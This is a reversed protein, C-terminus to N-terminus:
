SGKKLCERLQAVKVELYRLKNWSGMCLKYYKEEKKKLEAANSVLNGYALDGSTVSNVIVSGAGIIADQGIEVGPLIVAGGGIVAGKRINTKRENRWLGYSPPHKDNLFVVGPGIFVNDKITIGEPIFCHAGINVNAGIKCPGIETFAGIKCNDGITCGYLNLLNEDHYHVNKGMKVNRIPM